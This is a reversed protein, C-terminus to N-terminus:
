LATPVQYQAASWNIRYYTNVYLNYPPPYYTGGFDGNDIVTEASVPGYAGQEASRTGVTGLLFFFQGVQIEGTDVNVSALQGPFDPDDDTVVTVASVTPNAAEYYEAAQDNTDTYDFPGAAEPTITTKLYFRTGVSSLVSPPPEADLPSNNLTPVVAEPFLNYVSSPNITVEIAGGEMVNQQLALPLDLSGAGAGVASQDSLVRVITGNPATIENVGLGQLMELLKGLQQRTEAGAM